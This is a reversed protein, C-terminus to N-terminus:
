DLAVNINSRPGRKNRWINTVSPTTSARPKVLYKSRVCCFLVLSLAVEQALVYDFDYVMM